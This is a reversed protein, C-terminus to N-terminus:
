NKNRKLLHIIFYAIVLIWLLIHLYFANMVKEDSFELKVLNKGPRLQFGIMSQNCLYIEEKKGNVHLRWKPYYNQNLSFFGPVSNSVEFEWLAPNYKLMRFSYYSDESSSNITNLLAADDTLVFSKKSEVELSEKYLMATDARFLLPYNFVAQYLGKTNMFKEHLILPGPTVFDFQFGHKMNFMNAPGYKAITNEGTSSNSLISATLDPIPFGDAKLVDIKSEFSSVKETGVVTIPQLLMTHIISNLITIAVIAKLNIKKVFYYYIFILFPIQILLEIFLWNIISSQDLWLKISLTNLSAPFLNSFGSLNFVFIAISSLVMASIIILFNNKKQAIFDQKLVLDNLTIAAILTGCFISLFRFLSPHRFTDM